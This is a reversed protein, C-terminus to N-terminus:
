KRGDCHQQQRQCSRRQRGSACRTHIWHQSQSAFLFLGFINPLGGAYPIQRGSEAQRGLSPGIPSQGPCLFVTLREIASSGPVCIFGLTRKTKKQGIRRM